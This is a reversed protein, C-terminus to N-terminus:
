ASTVEVKSALDTSIYRIRPRASLLRWHVDPFLSQALSRIEASNQWVDIPLPTGGALPAVSTPFYTFLRDLTWKTTGTTLVDTISEQSYKAAESGIWAGDGQLMTDDGFIRYPKAREVSAVTLSAKNFYDHLVGSASQGVTGNLFMLFDQYAQEIPDTGDAIVGSMVIRDQLSLGQTMTQPDRVLGPNAWDYLEPASIYPQRGEVMTKVNDWDAIPWHKVNTAAWEIFWQMVLTKNVLHGAAFSDQLFHESYGQSMWALNTFTAKQGPDTAAFRV